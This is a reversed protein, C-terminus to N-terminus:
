VPQPLQGAVREDRHIPTESGTLPRGTGGHRAAVIEAAISLATEEPTRAGLDLGIPSRLRALERDSVGAERLRRNRDEHTRRSGMAGVYAVPLRLAETLLPIDFKADHTLVCLVTRGDTDTSALYRHPWDVVIEDADPFRVRTAFVPRADCVTVHYGLFKGARVLAAAFDIAGFVIMRPPPVASEVLLTLGGPCQSGDESVEVTGTRGADLLARAQAIVTRDLDPHGGLGGEHAGDPRVLVARGLLGAPGHVVRALAVPEGHAAVSLAASLAAAQATRDAGYPAIMIDITGGCTLGVAFADEDSYGFREVRTRGDQLAQLCLDYVAGEVCGGSVSGIATGDASVALAAGPPRPASGGVAVVTAVAFERGEEIWEHLHGALDLM